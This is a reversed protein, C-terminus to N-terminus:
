DDLTSSAGFQVRKGVTLKALGCDHVLDPLRSSVPLGAYGGWRVAVVQGVM